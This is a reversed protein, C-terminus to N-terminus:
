LYGNAKLYAIVQDALAQPPHRAGDLVLEPTLPAEYASDIGTFQPPEPHHHGWRFLVSGDSAASDHTPRSAATM